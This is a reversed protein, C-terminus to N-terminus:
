EVFAKANDVKMRDRATKWKEFIPCGIPAYGGSTGIYVPENYSNPFDPHYCIVSLGGKTGCFICQNCSLFEM